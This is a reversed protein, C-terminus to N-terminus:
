LLPRLREKLVAEKPTRVGRQLWERVKTVTLTHKVSCSVEVELQTLGGPELEHKCFACPGLVSAEYLGEVEVEVSHRIGDLDVFSVIRACGARDDLKALEADLNILLSQDLWVSPLTLRSAVRSSSVLAYRFVQQLHSEGRRIRHFSRGCRPIYM